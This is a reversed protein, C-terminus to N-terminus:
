RGGPWKFVAPSNKYWTREGALDPNCSAFIVDPTYQGAEAVTIKKAWSARNVPNAGAGYSKYEGYCATKENEPNNWNNWGEPAIAAPMECSLYVTKAYARWPRGLFLRSVEPGTIIRCKIFVLGYKKGRSTSAATIYSNAKAKIICNNYVATAPGFIFDTTGEIYCNVFYQRATEGGNFITDQNGLFRCNRFLTKDADVYLALAQGVPGASNEFTINEAVFRNGSIKATYSTFTRITGKGAYDDFTIITRDVDQGIFTVDTNNAPLEIKEKYIGNKIYLTIPALPYGRMANIADQIRTYDGSGDQAVTFTYKYQEPNATQANGRGMCYLALLILTFQRM